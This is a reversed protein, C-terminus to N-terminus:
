GACCGEEICRCDACDRLSEVGCHELMSERLAKRARHLRVGVNNASIGLAEAAEALTAGHIDVLSLVEAYNPHINRAQSVSCDCGSEPEEPPAEPAASVSELLREHRARKRLVDTATNRHVGYLWSLMRKPDNLTGAGEIARVAALQLVDDVDSSPVRARIFAELRTRHAGLATAVTETRSLRGTPKPM